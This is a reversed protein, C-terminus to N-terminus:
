NLWSLSFSGFHQSTHLLLLRANPGVGFWWGSARVYLSCDIFLAAWYNVRFTVVEYISFRTDCHRFAYIICLRTCIRLVLISRTFLARVIPAPQTHTHSLEYVCLLSRNVPTPPSHFYNRQHVPGPPTQLIPGDGAACWCLSSGHMYITRTLTYVTTTTVMVVRRISWGALTNWIVKVQQQTEHAFWTARGAQQQAGKVRLAGSLRM